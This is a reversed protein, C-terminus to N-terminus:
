GEKVPIALLVKAMLTLAHDFHRCINMGFAPGMTEMGNIEHALVTMERLLNDQHSKTIIPEM